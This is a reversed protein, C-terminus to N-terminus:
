TIYCGSSALRLQRLNLSVRAVHIPCLMDVFSYHSPEATYQLLMGMLSPLGSDTRLAGVDADQAFLATPLPPRSQHRGWRQHCATARHTAQMRSIAAPGGGVGLNSRM